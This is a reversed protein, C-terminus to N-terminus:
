PIPLYQLYRNESLIGNFSSLFHTYLTNKTICCQVICVHVDCAFFYEGKEEKKNEDRRSIFGMHM